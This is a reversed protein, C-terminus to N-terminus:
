TEHFKNAGGVFQVGAVALNTQRNPEKVPHVEAMLLDDPLGDGVRTLMARERQDDREIVM